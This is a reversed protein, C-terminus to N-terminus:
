ISINEFIIIVNPFHAFVFICLVFSFAFQKALPLIKVLNGLKCNDNYYAITSSYPVCILNDGFIIISSIIIFLAALSNGVFFLM